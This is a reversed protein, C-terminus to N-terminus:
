EDDEEEVFLSEQSRAAELLSLQRKDPGEWRIIRMRVGSFEIDDTEVRFGQEKLYEALKEPRSFIVLM